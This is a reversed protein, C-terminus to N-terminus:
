DATVGKAYFLEGAPNTASVFVYQITQHEDPTYCLTAQGPHAVAIANCAAQNAAVGGNAWLPLIPNWPSVQNLGAGAVLYMSVLGNAALTTNNMDTGAVIAGDGDSDVETLLGQATGGKRVANIWRQLEPASSNCARQIAGRRGREQMGIYSPIAVAALIGIIVVVILLEILTFGNKRKNKTM